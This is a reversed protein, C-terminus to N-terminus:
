ILANAGCKGGIFVKNGIADDNVCGFLDRFRWKFGVIGDCIGNVFGLECNASRSKCLDVETLLNAVDVSCFASLLSHSCDSCNFEIFGM